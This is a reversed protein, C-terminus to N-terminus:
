PNVAGQTPALMAFDGTGNPSRGYTFAAPTANVPDTFYNQAWTVTDVMTVGNDSYLNVADGGKGLGFTFDGGTAAQLLVKYAGPAITGTLAVPALANDSLYYTSLDITANTGNFLEVWDPTGDGQVENIVLKGPPPADIQVEADAQADSGSQKADVPVNNEDGSCAVLFTAASLYKLIKM